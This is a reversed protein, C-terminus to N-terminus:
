VAPTERLQYEIEVFARTMAALVAAEERTIDPAQTSGHGALPTTGRARYIDQVYDLIPTPLQSNKRYKDFFSGLTQDLVSESAVIDKALTEFISASTHLVQTYDAREWAARMRELLTKINPHQGGVPVYGLEDVTDIGLYAYFAPHIRFRERKSREAVGQALKRLVRERDSEYLFEFVDPATELGLFASECLLEIVDEIRTDAVEAKELFQAIQERTVVAPQGVFEYVVKEMDPFRTETEALLSTFAHGSYDQEAQLLDDVEIRTHKHNIAESLASKCLYIVDRPRPIIRSVIYDKTPMECVSPPFFREWIESAAVQGDLSACFREEVVRQLLVPDNWDMRNCAIKDAERATALIHSFIDSRLFVLLTLNIRPRKLGGRQYQVAITDGASLLAFLFEALTDLDERLRWAKDLNDVLVYVKNRDQLVNGLYTHLQPLRGKHLIESVRARTSSMSSQQFDIGCLESIAYELRATFDGRLDEHAELYDLLDSEDRSQTYHPHLSELRDRVSLALETTILYKWLSELLYGTQARSLTPSLLALLGEVDYDIPKIVCVHNRKDGLIEEELRYLNATKGSGKRGVYIKYQSAVLADRYPATEVFYGSLMGSENEAVYEGLNIRQLGAASALAERDKQFRDKYQEYYREVDPLWADVAQMCEQATKHTRLLEQFHLTTAFPEHALLLTPKGFGHALGAVLACKPNQVLTRGVARSSDLLHTVVGYAAWAYQMYWVLPHSSMEQPDDVTVPIECEKLRRTLRISADTSVESLLYLLTNPTTQAEIASRWAEAYPTSGADAYPQDRLFRRELDYSNQYSNYTLGSLLGIRQYDRQTQPYTDNLAIWVPKNTAIAYGLQFLVGTDLHTLDCAFLDSENIAKRVAAVNVQEADGLSRRHRIEVVGLSNIREIALEVTEVLEPLGPPYSFYCIPLDSM